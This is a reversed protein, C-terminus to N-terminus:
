WDYAMFDTPTVYTLTQHHVSLNSVHLTYQLASCCIYHTYEGTFLTQKNLLAVTHLSYISYTQPSTFHEEPLSCLGVEDSYCRSSVLLFFFVLEYMFTCHRGSYNTAAFTLTLDGNQEVM